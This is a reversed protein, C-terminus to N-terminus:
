PKKRYLNVECMAHGDFSCSEVAYSKGGIVFVDDNNVWLSPELAARDPAIALLQDRAIWLKPQADTVKVGDADLEVAAANFIVSVVDPDEADHRQWYHTGPEAFTRAFVRAMSSFVRAPM